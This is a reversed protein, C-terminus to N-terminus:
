LPRRVPKVGHAELGAIMARYARPDKAVKELPQVGAPPVLGGAV